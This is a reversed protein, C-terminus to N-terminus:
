VIVKLRVGSLLLIWYHAELRNSPQYKGPCLWKVIKGKRVRFLAENDMLKIVLQGM